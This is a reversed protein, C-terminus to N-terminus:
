DRDRLLIESVSTDGEPRAVADRDALRQGNWQLLGAEVLRRIRDDADPRIPEL